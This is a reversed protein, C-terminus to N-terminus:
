PRARKPRVAEYIARGLGIVGALVVAAAMLVAISDRNESLQKDRFGLARGVIECILGQSLLAAWTFLVGFFLGRLYRPSRTVYGWAVLSFPGFNYVASGWSAYNWVWEREGRSLYARDGLQIGVPIVIGLLMNLAVFFTNL